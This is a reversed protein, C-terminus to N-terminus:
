RKRRDTTATRKPTVAPYTVGLYQLAVQRLEAALRVPDSTPANRASLDSMVFGRAAVVVLNLVFDVAADPDPHSLEARRALLLTAMPRAADIVMQEAQARFTSEPHTEAFQFLARHLTREKRYAHVLGPILTAILSQASRDAWLHPSLAAASKEAGRAFFRVYVARMLADKDPFRKYVTGVALDAAKAIVPVTAAELGETGLVYEAADLLRDVTLRGRDQYVPYAIGDM